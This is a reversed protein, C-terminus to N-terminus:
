RLIHSLLARALLWLVFESSLGSIQWLAVGAEKEQVKREDTNEIQLFGGEMGRPYM